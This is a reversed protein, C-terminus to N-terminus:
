PKERREGMRCRFQFATVDNPGTGERRTEVLEILEFLGTEELRTVVGNVAVQSKAIGLLRLSFSRAPEPASEEAAKKDGSKTAAAPPPPPADLTLEVSRLAAEPGLAEALLALLVSWDPQNGM